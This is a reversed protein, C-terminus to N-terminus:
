GRSAVACPEDADGCAAPEQDALLESRLIRVNDPADISLRVRNGRVEVVSVRIDTDIVISEGAKRTLVLM